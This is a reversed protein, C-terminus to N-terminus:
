ARSTMSPTSSRQNQGCGEHLRGPPLPETNHARALLSFASEAPCDSLNRDAGRVSQKDNQSAAGVMASQDDPRDFPHQLSPLTPHLRHSDRELWEDVFARPLEDYITDV